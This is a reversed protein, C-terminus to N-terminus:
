PAFEPWALPDPPLADLAPMGETAIRGLLASLLRSRIERESSGLARAERRGSWVISTGPM